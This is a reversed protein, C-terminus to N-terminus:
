VAPKVAHAAGIQLPFNGFQEVQDAQGLVRVLAQAIKGFAHQLADPQRL